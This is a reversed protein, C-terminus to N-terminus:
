FPAGHEDIQRRMSEAFGELGLKWFTLWEAESLQALDTKGIQDLYAGAEGSGERIAVQEFPDLKTKPMHYIVRAQQLHATCAWGIKRSASPVYGFAGPRRGCVICAAPHHQGIIM